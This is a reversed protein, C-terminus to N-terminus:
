LKLLEKGSQYAREAYEPMINKLHESIQKENNYLWQFAKILDDKNKLSQVPTVYNKDTSFLDTAIGRAKLSYGVVLTPVCTSYAAITSHTRAGIFLRCRKIYGKLQQANCDNIKVVRGTEKFIEYLSEIPLRDDNDGIWIVHPILAIQMDTKKIIYDILTKYNEFTCGNLSENSIIMPSINIGVTNGEVFGEPLPSEEFDLLFASDPILKTNSNYEKIANYSLSERAIILDYRKFDDKMKQTLNDIEVSCGWFVTKAKREVAMDHMLIFREYGPYCFNDGGISLVIDGPAIKNMANVYRLKEMELDSHELKLKAYAKFFALSKKNIDNQEPILNLLKGVGYKKDENFGNTILNVSVDSAANKIIKTSSRVLAECGHNGSGNHGYFFINKM